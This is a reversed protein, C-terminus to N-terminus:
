WPCENKKEVWPLLCDKHFKHKCYLSHVVYNSENGGNEKYDNLCIVCVHDSDGASVNADIISNATEVDGDNNNSLAIASNKDLALGLVEHRRLKPMSHLLRARATEM